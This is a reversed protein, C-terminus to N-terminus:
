SSKKKKEKEGPQIIYLQFTTFYSQKQMMSVKVSVKVIAHHNAAQHSPYFVIPLFPMSSSLCIGENFINLRPYLNLTYIHSLM